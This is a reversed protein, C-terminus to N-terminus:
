LVPSPAQWPVHKHMIAAFRESTEFADLWVILEPWPQAAFWHPDTHAFQRVFPAQAADLLGWQPGSLFAQQQLSAALTHLHEAGADRHSLV